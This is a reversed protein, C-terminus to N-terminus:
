RVVGTDRSSTAQSRRDGAQDRALEIVRKALSRRDGADHMVIPAVVPRVGRAAVADYHDRDVEDVLLTVGLAAYVDAVGVVSVDKGLSDLM